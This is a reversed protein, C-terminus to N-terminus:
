MRQGLFPKRSEHVRGVHENPVKNINNIPGTVTTCGLALTLPHINESKSDTGRHPLSIMM